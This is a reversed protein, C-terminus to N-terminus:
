CFIQKPKISLIIGQQKLYETINFFNQYFIGLDEVTMIKLRTTEGLLQDLDGMTWRTGDRSGPYLGQVAEKFEEFMKRAQYEPLQKWTDATDIDTYRVIQFKKDADEVIGADRM